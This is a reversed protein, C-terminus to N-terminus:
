NVFFFLFTKLQGCGARVRLLMTPMEKTLCVVGEFCVPTAKLCTKASVINYIFKATLGVQSALRTTAPARSPRQPFLSSVTFMKPQLLTTLNFVNKNTRENTRGENTRNRGEQARYVSYVPCSFPTQELVITHIAALVKPDSFRTNRTVFM